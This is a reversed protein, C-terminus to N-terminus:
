KGGMKVARAEGLGRLHFVQIRNGPEKGLIRQFWCCQLHICLLLLPTDFLLFFTERM